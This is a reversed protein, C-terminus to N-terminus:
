RDLGTQRTRTKTTRRDSVIAQKTRALHRHRALRIVITVIVAISWGFALTGNAAEQPGLLRWRSSMVIDGYGLTTYNVASHYLAVAYEGFEGILVFVMAWVAVQAMHGVLLVMILTLTALGNRWLQTGVMRTALLAGVAEVGLTAVVGQIVLTGLTVSIGILVVMGM